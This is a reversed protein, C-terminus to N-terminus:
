PGHCGCSDHGTHGEKPTNTGCGWWRLGGGKSLPFFSALWLTMLLARTKGALRCSGKSDESASWVLVLTRVRPRASCRLRRPKLGRATQRGLALTRARKRCLLRPAQLGAVRAACAWRVPVAHNRGDERRRRLVVGRKKARRKWLCRVRAKCGRKQPECRPGKHAESCRVGEAWCLGGLFMYSGALLLLRLVPEECVYLFAELLLRSLFEGRELLWCEWLGPQLVNVSGLRGVQQWPACRM